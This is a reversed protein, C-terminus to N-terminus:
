ERGTWAVNEIKMDSQPNVPITNTWSSALGNTMWVKETVNRLDSIANVNDAADELMPRAPAGWPNSSVNVGGIMDRLALM